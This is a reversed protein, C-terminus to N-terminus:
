VIHRKHGARVDELSTEAYIMTTDIKEHGLLRSIDAVPMGNQLATTATTHRLIHPTVNKGIESRAAIGAVIKELGSKTLGHCPHRTSAFLAECDDHREELYGRLAVEAKANLWSTRHKRGKGFLHVAKEGWDIDSQKLGALESVRCGTSYLVEIIALERATRCSLRLYELEVQTLAQRPKTEYKIPEVNKAPNCPVYGEDLAWAYFRSIYERYKDLTRSSVEQRRQYDYLWLRIENTTVQEPPKRIERFFVELIIRYSKLTEEALGAMRKCVLYIKVAEPLEGGYVTLSTEKRTIEYRGAAQDLAQLVRNLTDTDLNSLEVLVDNRLQNYM